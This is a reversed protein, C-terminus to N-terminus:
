AHFLPRRLPLMDDRYHGVRYAQGFAKKWIASARYATHCQNDMASLFNLQRQHQRDPGALPLAVQQPQRPGRIVARMNPKLLRFGAPRM